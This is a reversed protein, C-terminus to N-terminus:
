AAEQALASRGLPTIKYVVSAGRNELRAYAILWQREAEVIANFDQSAANLHTFVVEGNPHSQAARLIDLVRSEATM